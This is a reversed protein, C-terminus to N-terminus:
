KLIVINLNLNTMWIILLYNCLNHIEPKEPFDGSPQRIQTSMGMTNGLNLPLNIFGQVLSQNKM